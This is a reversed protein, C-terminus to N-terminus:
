QKGSFFVISVRPSCKKTTKVISHQYTNNFEQDFMFIDGNELQFKTEIGDKDKIRFERIGGFSLTTVNCNYNDRHYPCYDSGSEYLNMWVSHIRGYSESVFTMAEILEPVLEILEDPSISCVKRPLFRGTRGWKVQEWPIRQRLTDVLNIDFLSPIHQYM